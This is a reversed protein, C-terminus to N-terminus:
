VIISIAQIDTTIPSIERYIMPPQITICIIISIAQIEIIIQFQPYIITMPLILVIRIKYCKDRYFTRPKWQCDMILINM